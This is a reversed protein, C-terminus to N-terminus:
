WVVDALLRRIAVRIAHSRSKYAGAKVLEDLKLLESEPIKFTVVRLRGM